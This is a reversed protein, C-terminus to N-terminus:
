LYGYDAYYKFVELFQDSYPNSMAMEVASKQPFYIWKRKEDVLTVTNARNEGPIITFFAIQNGKSNLIKYTTAYSGKKDQIFSGIKIKDESVHDSFISFKGPNRKLITGFLNKTKEANVFRIINITDIELVKKSMNTIDYAEKLQNFIDDNLVGTAFFGFESLKKTIDKRLNYAYTATVIEIRNILPAHIYHTKFAERDGTENDMRKYYFITDKITFIEQGNLDKLVACTLDNLGGKKTRIFDFKKVKDILIADDDFKIKQNFGITPLIFLVFLLNVYKM